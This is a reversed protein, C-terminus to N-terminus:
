DGPAEGEWEQLLLLAQELRRHVERVDALTREYLASGEAEMVFRAGHGATHLVTMEWGAGEEEPDDWRLRATATSGDRTFRWGESALRALTERDVM